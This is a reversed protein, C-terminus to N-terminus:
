WCHSIKLVFIIEGYFTYLDTHRYINRMIYIEHNIVSFIWMEDRIITVFPILAGGPQSKTNDKLANKRKYLHVIKSCNRQFVQRYCFLLKRINQYFVNENVIKVKIRSIFIFKLFIHGMLNVKRMNMVLKLEGVIKFCSLSM